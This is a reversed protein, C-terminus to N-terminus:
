LRIKFYGDIFSIFVSSIAAGSIIILIPYSLISLIFIGIWFTSCTLCNILEDIYENRFLNLKSKLYDKLRITPTSYIWLWGIASISLITYLLTINIM